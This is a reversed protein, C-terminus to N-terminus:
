HRADGHAEHFEHVRYRGLLMDDPWHTMGAKIMLQQLFTQVDPLKRWVQPLFTAHNCGAMIVVGDLGPEICAVAQAMDRCPELAMPGLLSVEVGIEPWDDVTVVSYRPDRTAAAVANARVDQRAPRSAELQGICGRLQGAQTLTVFTAGPEDLAPHELPPTRPLDLYEAIADRAQSILARGLAADAVETHSM